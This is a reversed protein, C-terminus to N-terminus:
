KSVRRNHLRCGTPLSQGLGSSKLLTAVSSDNLTVTKGLGIFGTSYVDMIRGKGSLKELFGYPEDRRLTPRGKSDVFFGKVASLTIQRRPVSQEDLPIDVQAGKKEYDADLTWSIQSFSKVGDYKRVFGLQLILNDDDESDAYFHYFGKWAEYQIRNKGGGNQTVKLIWAKGQDWNDAPKLSLVTSVTAQYSPYQPPRYGTTRRSQRSRRSNSAYTSSRKTYDKKTITYTCAWERDVLSRANYLTHSKGQAMLPQTIILLVFMTLLKRPM